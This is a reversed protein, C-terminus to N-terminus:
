DVLVRVAADLAARVRANPAVYHDFLFTFALREGRRTSAYGCLTSAHVISGTKALVQGEARTGTLRHRLTGDIGAVPLSAKFVAAHPHRSMYVLLQTLLRPTVLNHPSLGSGDRLETGELTAGARTLFARVVELGAETTGLGKLRAGLLRLLMEAHLNQSPKNVAGLAEGLPPGLHTALVRVSEPLPDSSTGIGGNVIVGRARLLEAFVTTTYRAPDELAVNLTRPEGGAPYSGSLRIVSSGLERQLVLQDESAALGTTASSEIRYYSSVPTAVLELPTGVALGPALHLSVCNDNFSLASVEAGYWWVLDGASWDLGRRSGSFLGEHGVLRGEVRRVGAQLLQDVLEELAATVRGETFRGSLNPDGRGVLYLDGRVSGARDVPAASELTTRPREDPGFADLAAATTVLKLVSAPAFSKDANHAYLVRGDELRRVEAGVFASRLEPPNLVADLRPKLAPAPASARSSDAAAAVAASAVGLWLPLLGLAAFLRRV